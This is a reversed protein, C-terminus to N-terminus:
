DPPVLFQRYSQSEEGAKVEMSADNDLLICKYGAELCESSGIVDYLMM